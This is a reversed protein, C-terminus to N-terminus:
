VRWVQLGISAIVSCNFIQLTWNLQASQAGQSPQWDDLDLIPHPPHTLHKRAQSIEGETEWAKWM